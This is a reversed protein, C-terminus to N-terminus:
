FLSWVGAQTLPKASIVTVDGALGPNIVLTRETIESVQEALVSIEANRLNIVFDAKANDLQAWLASPLLFVLLVLHATLRRM